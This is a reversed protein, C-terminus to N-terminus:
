YIGIIRSNPYYHALIEDANKGKRAMSQAGCQCMGVAHGFGRGFLFTWSSGTKHIECTTSKLIRGTPDVTLRLDEARLFDTKGTSGSLKIKTIRRFRGYDSQEAPTIDTIKGLSKLKPYRRILKESVEDADYKAMPWFYFKPRAVDRCYPCPVGVLPEYSDGFVNKSNETHGGCTSSYYTPFIDETDDEHDCVLIKGGTDNVANWIQTSEADLGKYVQHAQTRGLDWPRNAGFRKKIYLCYTRATITQAKLAEPEWYYPMEAGVVGALYAELPVHNIADFSRRDPNVKLKLTGRYESANLSFLHPQEPRITLEDADFRAGAIIIAGEALSVKVPGHPAEFHKPRSPSNLDGASQNVDFASTFQLTCEAADNLLLVRVWHQPQADMGPTVATPRKSNCAAPVFALLLLLAGTKCRQAFCPGM